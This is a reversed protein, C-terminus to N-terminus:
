PIPFCAVTISFENIEVEIREIAKKRKIVMFKYLPAFSFSLKPFSVSVNSELFSLKKLSNWISLPKPLEKGSNPSPISPTIKLKSKQIKAVIIKLKRKKASPAITHNDIKTKKPINYQIKKLANLSINLFDESHLPLM